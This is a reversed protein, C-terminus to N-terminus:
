KTTPPTPHHQTNRKRQKKAPEARPTPNAPPPHPSSPTSPSSCLSPTYPVTLLFSTLIPTHTFPSIPNQIHQLTTSYVYLMIVSVAFASKAQMCYGRITKDEMIDCSKTLYWPAGKNQRRPDITDPATQMYISYAWLSMLGAHLPLSIIPYLVHMLFLTCKILYFFMCLVGIVLNYQTNSPNSNTATKSLHKGSCPTGCEM